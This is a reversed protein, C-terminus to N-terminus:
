LGAKVRELEANVTERMENPMEDFFQSNAMMAVPDVLGMSALIEPDAIEYSKANSHGYNFYEIM